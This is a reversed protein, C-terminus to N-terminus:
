KLFLRLSLSLNKTSHSPPFPKLPKSCHTSKSPYLSSPPHQLYGKWHGKFSKNQKVSPEKTKTLEENYPEEPELSKLYRQYIAIHNSNINQDLKRKEYNSIVEKVVLGGLKKPELKDQPREQDVKGKESKKQYRLVLEKQEKEYLDEEKGKEDKKKRLVFELDKRQKRLDKKDLEEASSSLEM